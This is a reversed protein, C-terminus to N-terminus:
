IEGGFVIIKLRQYSVKTSYKAMDLRAISLVKGGGITAYNIAHCRCTFFIDFSRRPPPPPTMQMHFIHGFVGDRPLPCTLLSYERHKIKNNNLSQSHKPHKDSAACGEM